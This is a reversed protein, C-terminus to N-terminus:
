HSWNDKKKEKIKEGKRNSNAFDRVHTAMQKISITTKKIGVGLVTIIYVWNLGSGTNGILKSRERKNPKIWELKESNKVTLLLQKARDKRQQKKTGNSNVAGKDTERKQSKAGQTWEAQTSNRQNRNYLESTSQRRNKKKHEKDKSKDTKWKSKSATGTRTLNIFIHVFLSHNFM